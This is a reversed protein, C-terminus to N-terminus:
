SAPPPAIRSLVELALGLEVAVITAGISWRQPVTVVAFALIIAAIFAVDRTVRVRVQVGGQAFNRRLAAGQAFLLFLLVSQVVGQQQALDALFARGGLLVAVAILIVSLMEIRASMTVFLHSPAGGSVKGFSKGHGNREADMRGLEFFNLRQSGVFTAAFM